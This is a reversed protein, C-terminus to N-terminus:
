KGHHGNLARWTVGNRFEDLTWQNEALVQMFELRRDPMYPTEILSLDSSGMWRASCRETCFVPVGAVLAEVAACSVATVLAWAGQLDEALSRTENKSRFRLPRDTFRRLETRIAAPWDGPFALVTRTFEETNPCVVIHEGGVRWDAISIGLATLRTAGEGSWTGQLGECQLANRTVRFYKERCRDWYANDIYFWDRGERRAQEWLHVWSPRVGYFVAAGPELSKAETTAIQAGCGQAFARLVDRSKRKETQEYCTILHSGRRLKKWRGSRGRFKGSRWHAIRFLRPM